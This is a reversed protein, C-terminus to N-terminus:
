RRGLLAGIGGGILLLPWLRGFGLEPVFQGILFISGTLILMLPGVLSHNQSEPHTSM